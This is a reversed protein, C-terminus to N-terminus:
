NFFQRFMYYVYYLYEFKELKEKCNINSCYVDKYM